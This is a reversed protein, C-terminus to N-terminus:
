EVAMPDMGAFLIAGLELDVTRFTKGEGDGKPAVTELHAPIAREDLVHDPRSVADDLHRAAPSV